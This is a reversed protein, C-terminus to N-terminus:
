AAGGEPSITRMLSLVETMAADRQRVQQVIEACLVVMDECSVDVRKDAVEVYCEPKCCSVELRPYADNITHYTCYLGPVKEWRLIGTKTLESIRAIEMNLQEPKTSM